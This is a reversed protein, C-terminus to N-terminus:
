HEGAPNKGYKACPKQRSRMAHRRGNTERNPNPTRKPAGKKKAWFGGSEREPKIETSDMVFVHNILPYFIERRLL